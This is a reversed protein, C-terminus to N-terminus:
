EEIFKFYETSDLKYEEHNIHNHRISSQLYGSKHSLKENNDNKQITFFYSIFACIVGFFALRIVAFVAKFVRDMDDFVDKNFEVIFRDVLVMLVYIVIIVFTIIEDTEM